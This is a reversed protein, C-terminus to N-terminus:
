AYAFNLKEYKVCSVMLSAHTFSFLIGTTWVQWFIAKGHFELIYASCLCFVHAVQWRCIVGCELRFSAGRRKQDVHMQKRHEKQACSSLDHLGSCLSIWGPLVIPILCIYWVFYQATCVRNLAVFGVTQLYLAFPLDKAFKVGVLVATAVQPLISLVRLVLLASLNTMPTENSGDNELGATCSTSVYEGYFFPSFNHRIDKRQLHYIFADELFDLGYVSYNVVALLIFLSASYIAFSFSGSTFLKIKSSSGYPPLWLMISSGQRNVQLRTSFRNGTVSENDEGFFIAFPIAFIIPYIRLHTVIGYLIAAIMVQDELVSRLVGLLLLSTISEFSGRTSMTITYPNLMWVATSVLRVKAPCRLSDLTCQVLWGVVVDVVIFLIKGILPNYSVLMFSAVFPSYRYTTRGFPSDGLAMYRIKQYLSVHNYHSRM